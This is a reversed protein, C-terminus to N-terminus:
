TMGQHRQVIAIVPKALRLASIQQDVLKIGAVNM